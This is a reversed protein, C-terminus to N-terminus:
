SPEVASGTLHSLVEGLIAGADRAPPVEPHAAVFEFLATMAVYHPRGDATGTRAVAAALRRDLKIPVVREGGPDACRAPDSSVLYERCALPRDPHISCSEDELFPCPIRQAFYDLGLAAAAKPDTIEAMGTLVPWLGAAELRSRAAAFRAQITARRDPPLLEVLAALEHAEAGALPVLQRCCAGCGARCSVHRGEGAAIDLAVGCLGAMLARLAPLLGRLDTKGTPVPLRVALTRGAITLELDAALIQQPETPEAM